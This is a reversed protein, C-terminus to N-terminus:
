CKTLNFINPITLYLLLWASFCQYTNFRIILAERFAWKKEPSQGSDNQCPRVLDKHSFMQDSKNNQPDINM